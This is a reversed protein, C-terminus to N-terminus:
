SNLIKDIIASTSHGELFPVIEVAGGNAIVETAGVIGELEYDGGKILVDPQLTKILELPTEEEFLIVADVFVLSALKMIRTEEDLVPRNPGKLQAVSSDTNVGIILREGFAAAKSLYDIHGLHLLDFCGNTFVVKDNFGKWTVVDNALSERDRYVKTKILDSWEM